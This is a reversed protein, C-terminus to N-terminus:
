QMICSKNLKILMKLTVMKVEDYIRNVANENLGTVLLYDNLIYEYALDKHLNDRPTELASATTGMIMIMLISLALALLRKFM